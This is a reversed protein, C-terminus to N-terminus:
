IKDVTGSPYSVRSCAGCIGEPPGFRWVEPGKIVETVCEPDATAVFALDGDTL